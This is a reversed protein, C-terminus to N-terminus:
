FWKLGIPARDLWAEHMAIKPVFIRRRIHSGAFRKDKIGTGHPSVVLVFGAVPPSNSMPQAVLRIDPAVLAMERRGFWALRKRNQQQSDVLSVMGDSSSHSGRFMKYESLYLRPAAM